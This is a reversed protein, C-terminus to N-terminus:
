TWLHVKSLDTSDYRMVKRVETDPNKTHLVYHNMTSTIRGKRHQQWLASEAQARTDQSLTVIQELTAKAEELIMDVAASKHCIRYIVPPHRDPMEEEDKLATDTNSDTKLNAGAYLCIWKLEAFATAAEAHTLTPVEQQCCPKNRKPAGQRPHFFDIDKIIIFFVTYKYIYCSAHKSCVLCFLDLM